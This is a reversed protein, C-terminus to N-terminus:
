KSGLLLPILIPVLLSLIVGNVFALVTTNPQVHKAIVPLATDMTTAGGLAVALTGNAYRALWPVAIFTLLERFVNALFALTGAQAGSGQNLLIAALSYWGMGASTALAIRLGIHLVWAAALGGALTGVLVSAPIAMMRLGQSKIRPWLSRDQGLSYGIALLLIAFIINEIGSPVRFAGHSLWGVFIGLIVSSLILWTM